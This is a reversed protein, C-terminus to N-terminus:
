GHSPLPGEFAPPRPDDYGPVGDYTPDDGTPEAPARGAPPRDTPGEPGTGREVPAASM